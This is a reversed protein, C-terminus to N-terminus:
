FIIHIKIEIIHFQESKLVPLYFHSHIIKAPYIQYFGSSTAYTNPWFEYHM